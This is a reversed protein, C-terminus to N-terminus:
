RGSVLSRRSLAAAVWNSNSSAIIWTPPDDARTVPALRSTSFAAHRQVRDAIHPQEFMEVLCPKRVRLLALSPQRDAPHWRARRDRRSWRRRRATRVDPPRAAHRVSSAHTRGRNAATAAVDLGREIGAVDGRLADTVDRGGIATVGDGVQHREHHRSVAHDRQILTSGFGTRAREAM